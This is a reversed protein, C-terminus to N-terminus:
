QFCQDHAAVSLQEAKEVWEAREEDSLRLWLVKAWHSWESIKGRGKEGVCGQVKNKAIYGQVENNHAAGWLRM